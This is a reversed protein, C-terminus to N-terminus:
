KEMGEFIRVIMGWMYGLSGTFILQRGSYDTEGQIQSLPVKTANAIDMKLKLHLQKLDCLPIMSVKQKQAENLELSVEYGNHPIVGLVTVKLGYRSTLELFEDITM